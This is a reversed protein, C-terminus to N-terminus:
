DASPKVDLLSALLGNVFAPSRDTSVSKALEVAEDIAVRDPVDDRWIMELIAIRLINRDVAPMRELTWGEAHEAIFSDIRAQHEVVDRVLDAAYESVPPDSQASRAALTELPSVSRLDAEYLVDLARKRAKSRASM